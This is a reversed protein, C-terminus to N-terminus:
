LEFGWHIKRTTTVIQFPDGICWKKIPIFKYNKNRLWEFSPPRVLCVLESCLTVSGFSFRHSNKSESESTSLPPNAVNLNLSISVRLRGALRRKNRKPHKSLIKSRSLKVVTYARLLPDMLFGYVFSFWLPFLAMLAIKDKHACTFCDWTITEYSHAHFPFPHRIDKENFITETAAPSRRIVGNSFTSSVLLQSSIVNSIKM